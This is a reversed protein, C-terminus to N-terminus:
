NGFSFRVSYSEFKTTQGLKAYTVVHANTILKGDKTIIEATGFSEASGKTECKLEIISDFTKQYIESAPPVRIFFNYLLIVTLLGAGIVSIGILDKKKAQGYELM